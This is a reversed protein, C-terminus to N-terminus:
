GPSPSYGLRCTMETCPSSSAPAIRAHTTTGRAAAAQSAPQGADAQGGLSASDILPDVHELAPGTRDHDDQDQAAHDRDERQIEVQLASIGVPPVVNAMELDHKMCSCLAGAVRAIGARSRSGRTGLRRRSEFSHSTIM